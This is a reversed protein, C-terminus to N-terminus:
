GFLGDQILADIEDQSFGAVALVEAGDTGPMVAARHPTEPRLADGLPLSLQRIAAKPSDLETVMGRALNHPDDLAETVSLVPAFQTNAESLISEWEDRTRTEFLAAIQAIIDARAAPDLQLPIWEPHGALACFREWYAPEMDSTAIFKGDKTRWIGTDARRQGRPPITSLDPHRSLVNANLCMAADSMAIDLHKGRGTRTRETVAALIALAANTGTLIDAAALGLASPREPRDGARSMAGSIAMALPDHGPRDRYPGTQGCLSIECYILRPNTAMLADPGLGLKDLVGPRYDSVVIDAARAIHTIVDRAKDHGIDLMLSRKGRALMDQARISEREAGSLKDWGFVRAQKTVERPNEIRTTCAGMETLLWTAYPGPLLRSFDLITLGDLATM